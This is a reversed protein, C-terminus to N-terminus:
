EVGRGERTMWDTRIGEWRPRLVGSFLDHNTLGDTEEHENLAPLTVQIARHSLHIFLAPKM